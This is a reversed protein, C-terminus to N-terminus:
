FEGQSIGAGGGRVKVETPLRSFAGISMDFYELLNAEPGKEARLAAVYEGLKKSRAIRVDLPPHPDAEAAQEMMAVQSPSNQKIKEVMGELEVLCLHADKPNESFAVSFDDARFEAALRTEHSFKRLREPYQSLPLVTENMLQDIKAKDAEAIDIEVKEDQNFSSGYAEMYHQEIMTTDQNNQKGHQKMKEMAEKVQVAQSKTAVPFIFQLPVVSAYIQQFGNGSSVKDLSEEVSKDSYMDHLIAKHDMDIVTSLPEVFNSVAANIEKIQQGFEEISGYNDQVTKYFLNPNDRHLEMIVTLQNMRDAVASAVGNLELDRYHVHGAEHNVIDALREHSFTEGKIAGYDITINQDGSVSFLGSSSPAVGILKNFQVGTKHETEQLMATIAALNEKIDDAPPWNALQGSNEAGEMFPASQKAIEEMSAEVEALKKADMPQKLADSKMSNQITYMMVSLFPAFTYDGSKVLNTM